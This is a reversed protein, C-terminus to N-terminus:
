RAEGRRQKLYDDLSLGPRPHVPKAVPVPPAPMVARVDVRGITVRITPPGPDAIAPEDAARIGAV